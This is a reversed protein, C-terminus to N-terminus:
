VIEEVTSVAGYKNPTSEIILPEKEDLLSGARSRGENETGEDGGDGITREGDGFTKKFFDDYSAWCAAFMAHLFTAFWEPYTGDKRLFIAGAGSTIFLFL